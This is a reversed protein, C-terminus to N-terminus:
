LLYSIVKLRIELSTTFNGNTAVEVLEVVRGHDLNDNKLLQDLPAIKGLGVHLWHRNLYEAVAIALRFGRRCTQRM